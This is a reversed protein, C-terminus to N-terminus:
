QLSCGACNVNEKSEVLFTWRAEGGGRIAGGGRGALLMSSQTPDHADGDWLGSTLLIMSKDMRSRQGENTDAMKQLAVAWLKVYQQNVRRYM